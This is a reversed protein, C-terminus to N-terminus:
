TLLLSEEKVVGILNQYSQLAKIQIFKGTKKEKQFFLVQKPAALVVFPAKIYYNYGMVQDITKQNIKHAKCEVIVLPFLDYSPHLGKGYVLIDVRRKESSFVEQSLHPISSLDKEVAILSSPFQLTEMMHKLVQQRVIEEPLAPVSKKRIPDFLTKHNSKLLM